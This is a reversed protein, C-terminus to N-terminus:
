RTAEDQDSFIAPSTPTLAVRDVEIEWEELTTGLTRNLATEANLRAIYADLEANEALVLDNEFVVLQFNTTVGLNLKEREIETKQKVLDRAKKALELRTVAIEYDRVANRVEIQIRQVLEALTNEAIKVSAAARKETLRAFGAANRGVPVRFDLSVRDGGLQLDSFPDQFSDSPGRLTRGLTLSLDWLRANEAVQLNTEANNLNLLSIKHDRRNAFATALGSENSIDLSEMQGSILEEVEGFQTDTELDLVDVLRLRAADLGGQSAIFDLERRAVDAEAQIVERDAMRGAQVLLKNVELLEKARDFSRLAIAQRRIAQVYSRYARIASTILNILADEFQLQNIEEQVRATRLNARAVRFGAGRLLPQSFTLEVVSDRAVGSADNMGAGAVRSSLLLDGGTPVRLRIASTVRSSESGDGTTDRDAGAGFTFGPLFEAEAVTLAYQDVARGIRANQLTRSNQIALAIVDRINLDVAQSPQKASADNAAFASQAFTICIVSSMAARVLWRSVVKTFPQLSSFIKSSVKSCAYVPDSM